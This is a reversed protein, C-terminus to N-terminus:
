SPGSRRRAPLRRCRSRSRVLSLTRGASTRSVTTYGSKTGTVKVTMTQTLDGTTLLTPLRPPASIAAGSRYWQYTLTVPAPGWVGAVVTLPSGVKAEGSIAPVPATLSGRGLTATGTSVRSITTYGTKSGTVKVTITRGLDGADPTYSAGTAGVVATGSRYWQYALSVPAPGWAGPVATLISGVTADGVIAPVPATLSGEAITATAASNQSATTYGTKSGTVKVTVTEALTM